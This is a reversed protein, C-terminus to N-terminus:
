CEGWLSCRPLTPCWRHSSPCGGVQSQDFGNATAFSNDESKAFVQCCLYGSSSEPTGMWQWRGSSYNRTDVKGTFSEIRQLNHAAIHELIRQLLHTDCQCKTFWRSIAKHSLKELSVFDFFTMEVMSCMYWKDGVVYRPHRNDPISRHVSILESAAGNFGGIGFQRKIEAPDIKSYDVATGNEGIWEFLINVDFSAILTLVFVVFYNVLSYKGPGSRKLEEAIFPYDHWDIRVNDINRYYSPRQKVAVIDDNMYSNRKEVNRIMSITRSAFLTFAAIAVVTLICRVFMTHYRRSVFPLLSSYNKSVVVVVDNADVLM